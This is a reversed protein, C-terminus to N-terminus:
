IRDGTGAPLPDLKVSMYCIILLKCTTSEDYSLKVSSLLQSIDWRHQQFLFINLREKAFEFEAKAPERRVFVSLSNLVAYRNFILGQCFCELM